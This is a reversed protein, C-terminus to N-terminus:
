VRERCSARRIKAFQTPDLTVWITRDAASSLYGLSTPGSLVTSGPFLAGIQNMTNAYLTPDAGYTAWPTNPEAFAALAAQREAWNGSLLVTPENARDLVLGVVINRSAPHVAPVDSGNALLQTLPVSSGAALADYQDQTYLHAGFADLFTSNTGPTWPM